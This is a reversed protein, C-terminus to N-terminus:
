FLGQTMKNVRQQSLEALEKSIECGVFNRKSEKAAEATTVTGMFPDFIVDNENTFNKIFFLPLDKTFTAKNLESFRNDSAKKFKVINPITGWFKAGGNFKRNTSYKNLCIIFEFQSNCVGPQIAPEAMMKDWIIIDKIKDAYHGLLKLLAIKNGSIM